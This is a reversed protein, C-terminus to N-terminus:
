LNYEARLNIWDPLENKLVPILKDFMSRLLEESEDNIYRQDAFPQYNANWADAWFKLLELLPASVYAAAIEESLQGPHLTHLEENAKLPM